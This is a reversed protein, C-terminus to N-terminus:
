SHRGTSPSSRGFLLSIRLVRPEASSVKGLVDAILETMGCGALAMREEEHDSGTFALAELEQACLKALITRMEQGSTAPMLDYIPRAADLLACIGLDPAVDMLFDKAVFTKFEPAIIKDGLQYTRILLDVRLPSEDADPLDCTYRGHYLWQTFLDFADPDDEALDFSKSQGESFGSALATRFYESNRTLLDEHIAFTGKGSGAGVTIVVIKSKNFDNVM